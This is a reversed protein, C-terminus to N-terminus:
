LITSYSSSATDTTDIDGETSSDISLLERMCSYSEDYWCRVDTEFPNSAVARLLM